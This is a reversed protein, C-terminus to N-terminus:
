NSPKRAGSTFVLKSLKEVLARREEGSEKILKARAPTTGNRKAQALAWEHRMAATVIELRLRAHRQRPSMSFIGIM